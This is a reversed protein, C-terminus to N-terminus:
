SQSLQCKFPSQNGNTIEVRDKHRNETSFEDPIHDLKVSWCLLIVISSIM